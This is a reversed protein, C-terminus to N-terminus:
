GLRWQLNFGKYVTWTCQSASKTYVCYSAIKHEVFLICLIHPLVTLTHERSIRCTEGHIATWRSPGFTSPIKVTAIEPRTRGATSLRWFFAKLKEGTTHFGKGRSSGRGGRVSWLASFIMLGIFVITEFMRNTMRSTVMSSKSTTLSFPCSVTKTEEVPAM